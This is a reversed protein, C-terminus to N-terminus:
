PKPCFMPSLCASDATGTIQACCGTDCDANTTCRPRCAFTGQTSTSTCVLGDCCHRTGGCAADLAACECLTTAGCFGPTGDAFPVCCGTDCDASAKCPKRCGAYDSSASSVCTLGSCCAPGPQTCPGAVDSCPLSPCAAADACVKREAVADDVCCLSGCDARVSCTQVCRKAGSQELCLSGDCCTAGAADCRALPPLCAAAASAGGTSSASDGTAPSAVVASAGGAANSASADGPSADASRETGDHWAPGNASGDCGIAVASVLCLFSARRRALQTEGRRRPRLTM